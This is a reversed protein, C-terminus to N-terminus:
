KDLKELNTNGDYRELKKVPSLQWNYGDESDLKFSDSYKQLEDYYVCGRNNFHEKDDVSLSNYYSKFYVDCFNSLEEVNITEGTLVDYFESKDQNFFGYREDWIKQRTKKDIFGIISLEENESVFPIVDVSIEGTKEEKAVNCGAFSFILGGALLGALVKKNSRKM